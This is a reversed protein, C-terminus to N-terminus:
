RAIMLKKISVHDNMSIKIYYIGDAFDSVNLEIKKSSKKFKNANVFDSKILKGNPDYIASKFDVDDNALEFNLYVKDFTPNPYISFDNKFNFEVTGNSSLGEPQIQEMYSSWSFDENITKEAFDDCGFIRIEDLYVRDTNSSADSRFRLRTSTSFNRSYVHVTERREGVKFDIGSVWAELVEWSNGGDDSIEFFFDEGNSTGTVLYSFALKIESYISLNMVQTFTSSSPGSNDRIRLSKSNQIGFSNSLYSDTGGDNWHGWGQDFNDSYLLVCDDISIVDDSICFVNTKLTSDNGKPTNIGLPQEYLKFSLLLLFCSAIFTMRYWSM